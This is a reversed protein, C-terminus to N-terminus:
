MGKTVFTVREDGDKIVVEQQNSSNQNISDMSASVMLPVYKRLDDSEDENSVYVSWAERPPRDGETVETERASVRLYKEYVTSSVVRDQFGILEKTPPDYVVQPVYVIKGSADRVPVYVTRTGGGVTAYVPESVTYYKTRPEEIGFDVEVTLDADTGAPAEYMGKSSLATRVYEAAEQFRLDDEDMEPNASVIRYSQAGTEVEQNKIADVKFRYTSSCGALLVAIGALLAMQRLLSFSFPTM